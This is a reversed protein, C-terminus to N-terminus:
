VQFSERLLEAEPPLDNDQGMPTDIMHVVNENVEDGVNQNVNSTVNQGAPQSFYQDKKRGESEAAAQTVATAKAAAKAVQKESLVVEDPAIEYSDLLIRWLARM